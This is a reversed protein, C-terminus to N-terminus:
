YKLLLLLCQLKHLMNVFKGWFCSRWRPHGYDCLHGTLQAMQGNTPKCPAMFERCSSSTVKTFFEVGVTYQPNLFVLYVM